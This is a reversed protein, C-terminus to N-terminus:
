RAQARNTSSLKPHKPTNPGRVRDCIPEAFRARPVGEVRPAHARHNGGSDAVMGYTGASAILGEIDFENAYLLFRVMSQVDDPDSNTVPFSPFDSTMMVRLRKVNKSSNATANANAEAAHATFASAFLLCAVAAITFAKCKM